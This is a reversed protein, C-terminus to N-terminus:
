PKLALAKRAKDEIVTWNKAAIDDQTVLWSGGVAIVNNLKLYDPAKEPTIGGTPMFSVQPLPGALSKLYAVGGSPEAPFFKQMKYGLEYLMM